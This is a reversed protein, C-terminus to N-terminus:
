DKREYVEFTFPYAHKDDKPHDTASVREWKTWDIDPLKVDGEVNAHVRTLYIRHANKLAEKYIEGGGIVLVEEGGGVKERLEEWSRILECGSPVASLTRSLVINRRDPLARGISELTRRGMLIPHGKTKERFYKLDDPLNWPLKGKDGIM